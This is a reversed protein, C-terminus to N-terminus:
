SAVPTFWSHQFVINALLDPVYSRRVKGIPMPGSISVKPFYIDAMIDLGDVTKYTLTELTHESQKVKAGTFKTSGLILKQTTAELSSGGSYAATDFGAEKVKRM